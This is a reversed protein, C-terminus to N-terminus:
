QTDVDSSPTSSTASPEVATAAAVATEAILLDRAVMSVLRRESDIREKQPAIHAKPRTSRSPGPRAGVEDEEEEAAAAEAAVAEGAADVAAEVVAEAAEVLGARLCIRILHIRSRATLLSIATLAATSAYSQRPVQPQSSQSPAMM